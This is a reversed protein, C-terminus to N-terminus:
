WLEAQLHGKFGDVSSTSLALLQRLSLGQLKPEKLLRMLLLASALGDYLAAHPRRRTPPVHSAALNTLEPLLEFMMVLDMLRYSKLEPYFRKYLVLTDVWPGWTFVEKDDAGPENGPYPWVARLFADEIAAHHAGLFGNKRYHCFRDYQSSFSSHGGLFQATLGHHKSEKSLIPGAPCFCQTYTDVIEGGCVTVVGVELVGSTRSGECDIIYLAPLAETM